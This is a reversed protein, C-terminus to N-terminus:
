PAEEITVAVAPAAVSVAVTGSPHDSLIPVGTEDLIPAGTEDLIPGAATPALTSVTVTVPM